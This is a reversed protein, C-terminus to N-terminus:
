EGCGGTGADSVGNGSDACSCLLAMEEVEENTQKGRKKISKADCGNYGIARVTYLQLKAGCRYKAGGPIKRLM